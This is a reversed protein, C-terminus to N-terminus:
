VDKLARQLRRVEADIEEQTMQRQVEQQQVKPVPKGWERDQVADAAKLADTVGCENALTLLPTIGHVHAGASAAL